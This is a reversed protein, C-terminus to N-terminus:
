SAHALYINNAQLSFRGFIKHHSLKAVKGNLVKLIKRLLVNFKKQLLAPFHYM